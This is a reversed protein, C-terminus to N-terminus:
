THCCKYQSIIQILERSDLIGDLDAIPARRDPVVPILGKTLAVM